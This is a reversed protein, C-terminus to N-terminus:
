EKIVELDIDHGHAYTRSTKGKVRLKPLTFTPAPTQELVTLRRV